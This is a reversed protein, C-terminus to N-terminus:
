FPITIAMISEDTDRHGRSTAHSMPEHGTHLKAASNGSGTELNKIFFSKPKSIVTARTDAKAMPQPSFFFVSTLFSSPEVVVVVVVL